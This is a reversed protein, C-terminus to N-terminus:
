PARNGVIVPVIGVGPVFVFQIKPAKKQSVVVTPSVQGICTESILILVGLLAFVVTLFRIRSKFM